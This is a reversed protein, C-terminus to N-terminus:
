YILATLTTSTSVVVNSFTARPAVVNTQGTLSITHNVYAGTPYISVSYTGVPVQITTTGNNLFNYTLNFPGTFNIQYGAGTNNTLTFSVNQTCTGTATANIPGNINADAVEQNDADSQSINSIYRGQPVTYPVSSGTYGSGCNRTYYFTTGSNTYSIGNVFCNTQQGAYNYCFSKVLSKNKDRINVLRQFGDYEYYVAEGRDDMTSTIGVLPNYTYTTMLAGLPYLRLEDIAGSGSITVSTQGTIDHEYYTWGNITGGKVPYGAITGAINYSSSNMTWYSVVYTKAATLGSKSIAGNSLTYCQNGTIGITNRAASGITWNGSGDAEFSTYAIDAYAAGSVKAIPYQSYYDWIYANTPATTKEQQLISGYKDYNDFNILTELTNSLTQKTMTQPALLTGNNNWDKYIVQGYTLQVGDKKQTYSVVPAVINRNLMTQYVNGTAALVHPYNLYDVLDEGKSGFTEKSTPLVHTLDDYYYNIQKVVQNGSDDIQTETENQLLIAAYPLAYSDMIIDNGLSSATYTSCTHPDDSYVPKIRIQQETNQRLTAYNYVKDNILYYTSPSTSRYTQEETLYGNRWVNSIMQVGTYSYDNNALVQQDQSIQYSYVKKGNNMSGDSAADYETVGGYLVPSGTFQSIPIVSNANYIVSPWGYSYECMINQQENSYGVRNTTMQHNIALYNYPTLLTGSGDTSYSYSKQSIQTGDNDYNTMSKIRLGGGQLVLPTNTQTIWNIDIYAYANPNTSYISTTITYTHGAILQPAGNVNFLGTAPSGTAPYSTSPNMDTITFVAQGTSQDTITITPYQTATSNATFFAKYELYTMASTVALTTTATSQVSGTARCEITGPTTQTTNTAFQHPELAFVTKGGTPYTMSQLSCAKIYNVDTNRNASGFTYASPAGSQLADFYVTQQPMMTTNEFHGNNFGWADQACSERPAMPTNDYTMSYVQPPLVNNVDYFTVADLRMRYLSENGIDPPVTYNQPLYYFYSQSLKAQKILTLTGNKNAYVDVESVRKGGVRDTRDAVNIFSIQGGRWTISTPYSESATVAQSTYSDSNILTGNPNTVPPTNPQSGITHTYSKNHQFLNSVTEYNIFITDALSASVIKTLRWASTYAPILNVGNVMGMSTQEKQEFIYGVGNQDTIKYCTSNYNEIRNNTTPFQIFSLDSKKIIFRGSSGTITYTFVDPNIDNLGLANNYIFSVYNLRNSYVQDLPPAALYGSGSTEDPYGVMQRTLVGGANLAWGIGISSSVEDVRVGGAHYDLSIPLKIGGANIEFIPININPVGTSYSVPINGFKGLSAAEPSSLGVSILNQPPISQASVQIVIFTLALALFSKM